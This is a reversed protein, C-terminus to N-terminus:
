FWSFRSSLSPNKSAFFREPSDLEPPGSSSANL